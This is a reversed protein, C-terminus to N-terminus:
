GRHVGGESTITEPIWNISDAVWKVFYRRKSGIFPDLFYVKTWDDKHRIGRGFAQLLWLVAKQEYWTQGLGRQKKEYYDKQTKVVADNYPLYPIGCLIITRSEDDPFNWGENGLGRFATMFIPQDGNKVSKRFEEVTDPSYIKKAHRSSLISKIADRFSYSPFFVLTGGEDAEKHIHCIANALANFQKAGRDKYRTGLKVGDISTIIKGINALNTHPPKYAYMLCKHEIGLYRAMYTPYLSGSTVAVKLPASTSSEFIEAVDVFQILIQTKDNSIKILGRLPFRMLLNLNELFNNMSLFSRPIKVRAHQPISNSFVRTRMNREVRARVHTQFTAFSNVDINKLVQELDDGIYEKKTGNIIYNDIYRIITDASVLLQEENNYPPRNIANLFENIRKETISFSIMDTLNQDLNHAEDIIYFWDATPSGDPNRIKIKSYVMYQYPAFIINASEMALSELKKPCVTYKKAVKMITDISVISEEFLENVITQFYVENVHVDKDLTTLLSDGFSLDFNYYYDTHEPKLSM